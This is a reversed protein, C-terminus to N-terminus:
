LFMAMYAPLYTINDKVKLDKTHIIYAQGMCDKYKKMFKDLSSHTTYPSSNVIVPCVKGKKYFLFDIKMDNERHKRDSESYFFLKKGNAKFMQAVMNEMLMGNNVGIDELMVSNYLGNSLYDMDEHNKTVLLGTDSMYLKRNRRDFSMYLGFSPDNVGYCCNVARSEELFFFTDEYARMRADKGLSTISFKKEKKSLQSPIMNFVSHVKGQYREAFVAADERQTNLINKKILDVKAFSKSEAYEKVAEPMGGVLMYQRFRDMITQHAGELPRSEDFFKKMLPITATNGMARLFEEFDLPDLDMSEEESPILIDKVNKQIAILNGTEIYDYRGDAVLHKIASRAYPFWHVNDFIFLSEREYLETKFMLSLKNFFLDFDDLDNYFIDKLEKTAKSFDILIYSKYENRAFSEALHTKGVRRAGEILMATSGRSENKWQLLRDYAKRKLEM